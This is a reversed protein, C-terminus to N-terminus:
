AAHSPIRFDPITADSDVPAPPADLKRALACPPAPLPALKRAPPPDLKRAPACPPAPLKRAPACPPAPLPALKRAPPADLKRAPACPPAPLPALKRAPPADLKRAPACPPAPLPALKRAPPADLKRAPACPPAPLPAPADLQARAEARDAREHAGIMRAVERDAYDDLAEIVERPNEEIYEAFQEAREHASGKFAYRTRNWLALTSPELNVTVAQDRESRTEWGKRAAASRAASVKPM